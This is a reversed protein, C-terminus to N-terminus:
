LVKASFLQLKDRSLCGLICSDRLPSCKVDLISHQHPKLNQTFALSPIELLRLGNAVDNGYAFMPIYNEANIVISKTIGVDNLQTSALGLKFYFRNATRKVLILLSPPTCLRTQFPNCSKTTPRYTAIIDETLSSYALSMCSGESNELDPVKWSRQIGGNINWVCSGAISATLLQRANQSHSTNHELPHVTHIPRSDVGHMYQIPHITHRMDFVMLMGNQLGVYMYNPNNIDWSCSWAPSLINYNMVMNNGGIFTAFLGLLQYNKGLLLLLALRGCLSIHIDKVAKTSMPLMIQEARTPNMMNIHRGGMGPLRRAVLLVQYCADIDFLRASKLSMEHELVFNCRRSGCKDVKDNQKEQVLEGTVCEDSKRQTAELHLMGNCVQKETKLYQAEAVSVENKKSVRHREIWKNICSLGYIHGCPLCCIQHDGELTWPEICIPCNLGHLNYQKLYIKTPNEHEKQMTIVTSGGIQHPQVHSELMASPADSQPNIHIRSMLHTVNDADITPTSTNRVHFLAEAM